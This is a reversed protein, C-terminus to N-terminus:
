RQENGPSPTQEQKIELALQETEQETMEPNIKKLARTKTTLGASLEKLTEDIIATSDRMGQEPFTVTVYSGPTFLTRNELGSNVWVPHLHEIVLSWLAEEADVFFPVQEKRDDVSDAEDIMKSIGSSFNSGHIDGVSGPRIGKANLWFALQSSILNLSGDVNMQPTISGIQPKNDSGPETKFTWFANPAMKLGQDSVDIGYLISFAQFMSAYNTDALLTPILIAMRKTDSDQVPMIQDISRNIYVYPLVGYVNVGEKNNEPAFLKTVNRKDEDFYMFQNRDIVKYYRRPGGTPTPRYTGEFTVVATPVTPDSVDTSIVIFKDSPIVRLRPTPPTDYGSQYLFPEILCNKFLNFFANAVGMRQDIKFHDAYYELLEVDSDNADRIIRSPPHTYLKALKDIVRKLINIPPIRFHAQQYSQPSLQAALDKEVHPLLNGQYIDYLDRNHEIYTEYSKVIKVLSEIDMM